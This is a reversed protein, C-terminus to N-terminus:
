PVSVLPAFPRAREEDPSVVLDAETVRTPETAVDTSGSSCSTRTPVEVVAVLNWIRGSATLHHSMEERGIAALQAVLAASTGSRVPIDCPSFM